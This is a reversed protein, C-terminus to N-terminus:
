QRIHLFPKVEAHPLIARGEDKNLLRTLIDMVIRAVEHDARSAVCGITAKVLAERSALIDISEEYLALAHLVRLLASPKTSGAISSPLAELLPWIPCFM